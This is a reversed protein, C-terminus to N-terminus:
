CRESRLSVPFGSQGHVLRRRYSEHLPEREDNRLRSPVEWGVYRCGDCEGLERSTFGAVFRRAGCALCEIEIAKKKAAKAM